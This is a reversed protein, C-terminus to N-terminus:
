KAALVAEAKPVTDEVVFSWHHGIASSRWYSELSRGDMRAVATGAADHVRFKRDVLRLVAIAADVARLGHGALEVRGGDPLQSVVRRVLHRGNRQHVELRQM